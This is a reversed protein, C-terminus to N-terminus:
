RCDGTYFKLLVSSPQISAGPFKEKVVEESIISVAAGTDLEMVLSKHNVDVEVPIGSSNGVTYLSLAGGQQTDAENPNDSAM